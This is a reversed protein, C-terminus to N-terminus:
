LANEVERVVQVVLVTIDLLAGNVETYAVSIGPDTPVDPLCVLPALYGALEMNRQLSAPRVKVRMVEANPKEIWEPGGGVQDWEVIEGGLNVFVDDPISFTNPLTLVPTIIRHKDDNSLDRLRALPYTGPFASAYKGDYPQYARIIARHEPRVKYLAGTKQFDRPAPNSPPPNDQIPFKIIDPNSPELGGTGILSLQWVLHDLASRLNQVVDGIIIGWRRIREESPRATARFIHYGSEPDFEVSMSIRNAESLVPDGGPGDVYRSVDPELAERHERARDIKAWVGSLDPQYTM